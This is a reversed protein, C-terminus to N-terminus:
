SVYEERPVVILNESRFDLVVLVNRLFLDGLVYRGGAGAAIMSVCLSQSIHRKM